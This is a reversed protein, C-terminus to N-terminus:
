EELGAHGVDDVVARVGRQVAHVHALRVGRRQVDAEVDAAPQEHALNVVPRRDQEHGRDHAVQQPHEEGAREALGALDVPEEAERQQHQAHELAEHAVRERVVQQGAGADAEQLAGQQRRRHDAGVDRHEQEAAREGAVVDDGAEVADV